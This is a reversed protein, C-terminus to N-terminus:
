ETQSRSGEAASPVLITQGVLHYAPNLYPNMQLLQELTIGFRDAIDKLTEGRKIVYFYGCANGERKM